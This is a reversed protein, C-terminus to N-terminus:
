EFCCDDFACISSKRGKNQPREARHVENNVSLQRSQTTVIVRGLGTEEQNGLQLVVFVIHGFLNILIHSTENERKQEFTVIISLM